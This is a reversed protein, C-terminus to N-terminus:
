HRTCGGTRCRGCPIASDRETGLLIDYAAFSMDEGRLSGAFARAAEGFGIFSIRM